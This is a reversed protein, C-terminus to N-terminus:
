KANKSIELELLRHFEDSFEDLTIQNIDSYVGDDGRASLLAQTVSPGYLLYLNKGIEKPKYAGPPPGGNTRVALGINNNNLNMLFARKITQPGRATKVLVEVKGGKHRVGPPLPEQKSFRALSTARSQGRVVAELSANSARTQVWLRKGEKRLYSAPFAIQERVLRDVRTRTKDAIKNLARRACTRVTEEGIATVLRDADSTDLVIAFEAM